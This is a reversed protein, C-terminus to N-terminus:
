GRYNVDDWDVSFDKGNEGPWPGEPLRLRTSCLCRKWTDGIEARGQELRRRNTPDDIDISLGAPWDNNEDDIWHPTQIIKFHELLEHIAILTSGDWGRINPKWIRWSSWACIGPLLRRGCVWAWRSWWRDQFTEPWDIKWAKPKKVAAHTFEHPYWPGCLEYVRAM